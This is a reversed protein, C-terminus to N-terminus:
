DLAFPWNRENPEYQGQGGQYRRGHTWLLEVRSWPPAYDMGWTGESLFRPEAPPFLRRSPPTGGGVYYGRYKPGYTYRAWPAITLPYGAREHGYSAHAHGFLPWTGEARLSAPQALM